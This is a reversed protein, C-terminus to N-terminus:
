KQINIVNVLKKWRSYFIWKKSFFRWKVSYAANLSKVSLNDELSQTWEHWLDLIMTVTHSLQYSGSEIMFFCTFNKMMIESALSATCATLILFVDANLDSHSLRFQEAILSLAQIFFSIWSNIINKLQIKISGLKKQLTIIFKNNIMELKQCVTRMKEAILFIIQWLYTKYLKKIQM